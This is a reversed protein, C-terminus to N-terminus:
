SRQNSLLGQLIGCQEVTREPSCRHRLSILQQHLQTLEEIRTEVQSIHADMMSNVEDCQADPSRKLAILQRIESLSLDLNRCLKIFLLQEVSSEDYLRFNGESRQTSSLLKEREYYRITQISCDTRKSLEGIKM